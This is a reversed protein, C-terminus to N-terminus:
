ILYNKILNYLIYRGTNLIKIIILKILVLKGNIQTENIANYHVKYICVTIIIFDFLEDLNLNNLITQKFQM